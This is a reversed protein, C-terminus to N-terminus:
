SLVFSNFNVFMVYVGREPERGNMGLGFERDVRERKYQTHAWKVIRACLIPL